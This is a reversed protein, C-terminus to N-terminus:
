PIETDPHEPGLAKERIELSRRCLPEAKDYAGMQYYLVALGNLSFATDLHEPGLGKECIALITEALPIAEAYRGQQRLRTVEQNLENAKQLSQDEAWGPTGALLAVVLILVILLRKTLKMEGWEAEPIVM